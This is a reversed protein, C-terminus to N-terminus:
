ECRVSAAWLSPTSFTLFQCNASDMNPMSSARFSDLAVRYIPQKAFPERVVLPRRRHRDALALSDTSLSDARATSQRNVVRWASAKVRM